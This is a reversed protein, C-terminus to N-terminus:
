NGLALVHSYILINGARDIRRKQHPKELTVLAEGTSLLQIDLVTSKSKHDQFLKELEKNSDVVITDTQVM